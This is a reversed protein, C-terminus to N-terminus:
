ATRYSINVHTHTIANHTPTPARHHTSRLVDGLMIHESRATFIIANHYYILHNFNTDFLTRRIYPLNVRTKPNESHMSSTLVCLLASKSHLQNIFFFFVNYANKNFYLSNIGSNDLIQALSLIGSGLAGVVAKSDSWLSAKSVIRRQGTARCIGRCFWFENLETIRWFSFM